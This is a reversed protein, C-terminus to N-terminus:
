DDSFEKEFIEEGCSSVLFQSSCWQIEKRNMTILFSICLIYFDSFCLCENVFCIIMIFIFNVILYHSTMQYLLNRSQFLKNFLASFPHKSLKGKVQFWFSKWTKRKLYIELSSVSAISGVSICPKVLTFLYIIGTYLIESPLSKIVNNSM